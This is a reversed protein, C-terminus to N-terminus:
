KEKNFVKNNSNDLYPKFYYYLPSNKQGLYQFWTGDLMYVETVTLFSFDGVKAKERELIHIKNM